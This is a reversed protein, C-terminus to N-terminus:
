KIIKHSGAADKVVYVGKLSDTNQVKNGTLSYIQMRSYTDEETTYSMIGADDPHNNVWTKSIREIWSEVDSTSGTTGLGELHDATPTLDVIKQLTEDRYTAAYTCFPVVTKGSFDYSEAFTSIIMPATHWWVPCGIFVIDYEEWKIVQDKIEPRADSDREELAVETCPTYETPYPTVPEIEFLEGNTVERIAEAMKKTTGGWSFYAVLVKKGNFYKGEGESQIPQPESADCSTIAIFALLTVLIKKM